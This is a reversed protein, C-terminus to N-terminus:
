SDDRIASLDDGNSERRILSVNCMSSTAVTRVVKWEHGPSIRKCKHYHEQRGDARANGGNM